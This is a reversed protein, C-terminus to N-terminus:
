KTAIIKTLIQLQQGLHKVLEEDSKDMKEGAAKLAVVKKDLSKLQSHIADVKKQLDSKTLNVCNNHFAILIGDSNANSM